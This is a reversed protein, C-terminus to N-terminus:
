LLDRRKMALGLNISGSRAGIRSLSARDVARWLTEGFHDILQQILILSAKMEWKPEKVEKCLPAVCSLPLFFALSPPLQNGM